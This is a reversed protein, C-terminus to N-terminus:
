TVQTRRNPRLKPEVLVEMLLTRVANTRPIASPLTDVWAGSGGLFNGSEFGDFAISVPDTGVAANVTLTATASTVDFMIVFGSTMPFGSLDIEYFHYQNDSGSATYIKVTTFSQGDPSVKVEAIDSNEFSDIKAWFRLRV